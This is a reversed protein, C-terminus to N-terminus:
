WSGVLIKGDAGESVSLVFTYIINSYNTLLHM